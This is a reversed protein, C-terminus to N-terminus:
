STFGFPLDHTPEPDLAEVIEDLKAYHYTPAPATYVVARTAPDAQPDVLPGVPRGNSYRRV